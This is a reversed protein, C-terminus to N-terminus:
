DTEAHCNQAPDTHKESTEDLRRYRALALIQGICRGHLERPLRVADCVCELFNAAVFLGGMDPRRVGLLDAVHQEAAASSKGAQKCGM